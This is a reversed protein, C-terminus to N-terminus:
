LKAENKEKNTIIKTQKDGHKKITNTQKEFTKRLSSYTFRGQQIIQTPGSPLVEKGILYEYEDNKGSSLTSLKVIERHIDYLLKENTVRKDIKM